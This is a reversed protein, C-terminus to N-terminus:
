KPSAARNNVLTARADTAEATAEIKILRYQYGRGHSEIQLERTGCETRRAHQGFKCTCQFGGWLSEGIGHGKLMARMDAASEAYYTRAQM